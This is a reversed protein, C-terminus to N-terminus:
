RARCCWRAARVNIRIETCPGQRPEIRMGAPLYDPGRQEQWSPAFDIEVPEAGPGLSRNFWPQWGAQAPFADAETAVEFALTLGEEAVM